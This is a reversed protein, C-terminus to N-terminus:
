WTKLLKQTLKHYEKEARITTIEGHGPYLVTKNPYAFIDQLSKRLGSSSSYEFDTRGIGNAFITDGTLMFNAHQSYLCISGPTHGPTEIIILYNNGVKITNGDKLYFSIEPQPEVVEIGLFYRATERMRIVLFEDKPHILFPINYTHVLEWAALIHDFHGHTALVQSPTLDLDRLKNKIYEADDGPDVILAEKTKQDGLIYCNTGLKGVTLQLIQLQDVQTLKSKM